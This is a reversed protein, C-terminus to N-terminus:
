VVEMILDDLADGVPLYEAPLRCEGGNLMRRMYRRGLVAGALQKRPCVERAVKLCGRVNRVCHMWGAPVHVMDGHRQEVQWIGTGTLERVGEGRGEWHGAGALRQLKREAADDFVIAAGSMLGQPQLGATEAIAALSLSPATPDAESQALLWWEALVEREAVHPPFAAAANVAGAADLHWWTGRIAAGTRLLRPTVLVLWLRHLASSSIGCPHAEGLGDLEALVQKYLDCIVCSPSDPGQDVQPDTPDVPQFSLYDHEHQVVEHDPQPPEKRAAAKATCGKARGKGSKKDAAPPAAGYERSGHQQMFARTDPINM